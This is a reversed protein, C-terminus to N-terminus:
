VGVASEQIEFVVTGDATGPPPDEGAYVVILGKDSGIQGAIQQVQALASQADSVAQNATEEVSIAAYQAEASVAVLMASGFDLVGYPIDARFAQHAGKPGVLVSAIPSDNLDYIAVPDGGETERLVGTAGIALDGTTEVLVPASAFTYM